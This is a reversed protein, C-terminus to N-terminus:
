AFKAERRRQLEDVPDGAVAVGALVDDLAVGLQKVAAAMGAATDVKEDLRAALLLCAQGKATEEKHGATLEALTAAYIGGLPTAVPDLLPQTTRKGTGNRPPRCEACHARPRGRGVKPPLPGNCTACTMKMDVWWCCSVAVM